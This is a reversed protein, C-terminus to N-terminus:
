GIEVSNIWSQIENALWIAEKETLGWQLKYTQEAGLIIVGWTLPGSGDEPVYQFISVHDIKLITGFEQPLGNHKADFRTLSKACGYEFRNNKADFHVFFTSKKFPSDQASLYNLLLSIYAVVGIGFLTSVIARETSPAYALFGLFAVGVLAAIKTASSKKPCYIELEEKSKKGVIISNGPKEFNEYVMSPAVAAIHGLTSLAEKVSSFRKELAPETLKEIWRVFSSDLNTYSSMQEAFNIRLNQQPLESPSVGTLLHILTAGLAYLDSGPTARGGFQELPTYGSTGVVTFTAGTVAMQNQVSGFDVLYIQEDEGLILNSPKIDRHLVPPNLGHLYGLIQLVERAFRRLEAESFKRGKNLLGQLTYGPIYNQVLGWWNLEAGEVSFHDRYRPIQPHNLNQLVQAEREFLKLDDWQMDSTFALLKVVVVAPSQVALDTALWTQRGPAGQRFKQKLQYRDQLIQGAAFMRLYQQAPSCRLPTASAGHIQKPTWSLL